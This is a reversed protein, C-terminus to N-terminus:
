ELKRSYRKQYQAVKKQHRQKAVCITCTRTFYWVTGCSKKVTAHFFFGRHKLWTTGCKQCCRDEIPVVLTRQRLREALLHLNEERRAIHKEFGLLMKRAIQRGSERTRKRTYSLALTQLLSTKVGLLRQRRAVTGKKLGFREAIQQPALRKSHRCLFVDFKQRQGNLWRKKNKAARSRNADVLRLAGLNKQIATTTRHPLGLLDMDSIQRASLGQSKLERLKAKQEATLAVHRISEVLKMKLAQRRICVPNRGPIVIDKLTLGEEALKDLLLQKEFKKWKIGVNIEKDFITQTKFLM